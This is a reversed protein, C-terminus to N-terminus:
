KVIGIKYNNRIIWGNENKELKYKETNSIFVIINLIEDNEHGIMIKDVKEKFEHWKM